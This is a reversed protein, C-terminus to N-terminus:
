VAQVKIFRLASHTLRWGILSDFAAFQHILVISWFVVQYSVKSIQPASNAPVPFRGAM